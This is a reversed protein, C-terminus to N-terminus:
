SPFHYAEKHKADRKHDKKLEKKLWAAQAKHDEPHARHHYILFEEDCEFCKVTGKHVDMKSPKESGKKVIMGQPM